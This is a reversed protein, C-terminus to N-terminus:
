FTFMLAQDVSVSILDGIQTGPRLQLHAQIEGTDTKLTVAQVSGIRQLSIIELPLGGAPDTYIAEPRIFISDSQGAHSRWIDPLAATKLEILPGLAEASLQSVPATYVDDPQGSQILEGNSMIAVKDAYQLAEGPDHTVLLAPIDADRVASLATDRVSARLTPDLGSFPEDMLIAQPETALARAIAVRQQEGGSLEHPYADRLGSLNLKELWDKIRQDRIEPTVRSLGFGINKAVALHPFLAFDQFILGINRQEPPLTKKPSSLTKDGVRVTGSDPSEIGALLRLLTSKGAGSRGVLATIEGPILNLNVSDVVARGSFSKSLTKIELPLHKTMPSHERPTKRVNAM